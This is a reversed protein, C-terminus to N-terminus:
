KRTVKVYPKKNQITSVSAVDVDSVEGDKIAQGLATNDIVEKSIKKWLRAGIKRKLAADDTVVTTGQVRTGVVTESGVAVSISDLETDEFYSLLTKSNEEVITQQESIKRKAEAIEALAKEALLEKKSVNSPRKLTKTTKNM